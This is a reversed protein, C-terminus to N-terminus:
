DLTPAVEILFPAAGALRRTWASDTPGPQAQRGLFQSLSEGRTDLHKEEVQANVEAWLRM